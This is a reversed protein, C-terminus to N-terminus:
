SVSCDSPKVLEFLKDPCGSDENQEYQDANSTGMEVSVCSRASCACDEVSVAKRIEKEDCGSWKAPGGRRGIVNYVIGLGGVSPTSKCCCGTADSGSLKEDFEETDAEPGTQEQVRAPLLCEIAMTDTSQDYLSETWEM